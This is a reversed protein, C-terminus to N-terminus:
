INTGVDGTSTNDPVHVTPILINQRTMGAADPTIAVVNSIDGKNLGLAGAALAGAAGIGATEAFKKGKAKIDDNSMAPHYPITPTNPYQPQPAVPQQVTQQSQAAQVQQTAPPPVAGGNAAINEFFISTILSM